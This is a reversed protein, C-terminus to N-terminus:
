LLEVVSVKMTSTMCVESETGGEDGVHNGIYSDEAFFLFFPKIV